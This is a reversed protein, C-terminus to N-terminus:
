TEHRSAEPDLFLGYRIFDLVEQKRRRLNAPSYADAHGLLRMVPECSFYFAILAVISFTTQGSDVARFEGEKIGREILNSVAHARPQFYKRALLELSKGGMMMMQQFLPAFRRRRSIFDFHMNVYRLLLSRPSGKAELVSMLQRHFEKSQAEVVACYLADKNKFYYYLLAKNVGAASAIADTRAGALGVGAFIEGAAELIAARTKAARRQQHGAPGHSSSLAPM